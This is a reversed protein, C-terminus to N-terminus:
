GASQMFSVFKDKLQKVAEADNSFVTIYGGQFPETKVGPINMKRSHFVVMLENGRFVPWFRPAATPDLIESEYFVFGKYGEILGNFDNFKYNELFSKVDSLTLATKNKALETFANEPITSPRINSVSTFGNLVGRKKNNITFTEYLHVDELAKGIAKSDRYITSGRKVIKQDDSDLDIWVGIEVWGKEPERATVAVNNEISFLTKGNVANRINAPGDIRESLVPGDFDVQAATNTDPAPITVAPSDVKKESSVKAPEDQCAAFMLLCLPICIRKM